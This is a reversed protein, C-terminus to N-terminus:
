RESFASNLAKHIPKLFYALLSKEGTIIDANVIMGPLILNQKPDNGVYSKELTVVGKYFTQGRKNAFTTASLGAVTGNISGYRSFDYSTIKIVVPFGVKIHGIDNPSIKVEAFLESDAPVIEMLERGPAIIGGVTHVELGKVVGDVPSRIALREIQMRLKEKIELADARESELVGLQQLTKERAKTVISQLRWEYESIADRAQIIKIKLGAVQGQQENLERVVALYTIEAVLREKYLKDQTSFATEAIELTKEATTLEHTLLKVQEKKQTLQTKLIEQERQLSDLMGTLIEKEPSNDESYQRCLRDFVDRDGSIFARLRAARLDLLRVKTAVREFDSRINEGRLRLLIQGKTVVDDDRVLIEEVSGGELHQISQVYSSPVIEGSTRAMEKIQTLAAWGVFIFFALCIILMTTRILYPTRAEELMVSQSLIRLQETTDRNKRAM